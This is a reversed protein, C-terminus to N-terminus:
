LFTFRWLASPVGQAVREKTQGGCLQKDRLNSTGEELKQLASDCM